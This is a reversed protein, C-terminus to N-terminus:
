RGELRVVRDVLEDIRKEIHKDAAHYAKALNAIEETNKRVAAAYRWIASMVFVVVAGAVSGVVNTILSTSM